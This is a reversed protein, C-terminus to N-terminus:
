CVQVKDLDATALPNQQDTSFRLGGIVFVMVFIVAVTPANWQLTFAIRATVTDLPAVTLRSAPM